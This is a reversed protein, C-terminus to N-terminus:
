ISSKTDFGLKWFMPSSRPGGREIDGGLFLLLIIILLDNSDLIPNSGYPVRDKAESLRCRALSVRNFLVYIHNVGIMSSHPESYAHDGLSM